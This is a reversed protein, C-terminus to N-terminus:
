AQRDFAKLAAPRALVRDLYAGARPFDTLLEARMALYLTYGMMIDCADFEAGLLFGDDSLADEVSVFGVHKLELELERLYATVSPHLEAGM